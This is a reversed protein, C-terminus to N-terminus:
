LDGRLRPFKRAFAPPRSSSLSKGIELLPLFEFASVGKPKPRELQRFHQLLQKAVGLAVLGLSLLLRSGLWGRLHRLIWPRAIWEHRGISSTRRDHPSEWISRGPTSSTAGCPPELTKLGSALLTHRPHGWGTERAPGRFLRSLRLLHWVVHPRAANRTLLLLWWSTVWVQVLMLVLIAHLPLHRVLHPHSAAGLMLLGASGSPIWVKALLLCLCLCLCLLMAHHWPVMLGVGSVHASTAVISFALPKWALHRLSSFSGVVVERRGAWLVTCWAELLLLLLFLLLRIVKNVV